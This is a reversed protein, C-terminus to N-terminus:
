LEKKDNSAAKTPSNVYVSALYSYIGTIATVALSSYFESGEESDQPWGTISSVIDEVQTNFNIKDFYATCGSGLAIASLGIPYNSVLSKTYNEPWGFVLLLSMLHGVPIFFFYVVAYITAAEFQKHFLHIATNYAVMFLVNNIVGLLSFRIEQPISELLPHILQPKSSATPAEQTSSDHHGTPVAVPSM